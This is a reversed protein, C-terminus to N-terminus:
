SLGLRLRRAATDAKSFRAKVPFSLLTRSAASLSHWNRATFPGAAKPSRFISATTQMQALRPRCDREGFAKRRIFEDSAVSGARAHHTRGGLLGARIAKEDDAGYPLERPMAREPACFMFQKQDADLFQDILRQEFSPPQRGFVGEVAEVLESVRFEKDARELDPSRCPIDAQPRKDV